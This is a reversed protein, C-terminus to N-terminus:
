HGGRSGGAGARGPIPAGTGATADNGGRGGRKTRGGRGGPMAGEGGYEGGATALEAAAKKAKNAAKKKAAKLEEDTMQPYLPDHYDTETPKPYSAMPGVIARVILNIPAVLTPDERPRLKPFDPRMWSNVLMYALPDSRERVKRADEVLNLNVTVIREDKVENWREPNDINSKTNNSLGVLGQPTYEQSLKPLSFGRWIVALMLGVIIVLLVKEIHNLFFAQVADKDLSIKPKKM